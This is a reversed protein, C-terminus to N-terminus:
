RGQKGNEVQAKLLYQHDALLNSTIEQQYNDLVPGLVLGFMVLVNGLLAGIVMMIYNPMNQFLVRLRFRKMIGIKPTLGSRR